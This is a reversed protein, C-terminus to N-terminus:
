KEIQSLQEQAAGHSAMRFAKEVIAHQEPTLIPLTAMRRATAMQATLPTSMARLAARAGQEPTSMLPRAILDAIPDILRYGLHIIGSDVIGPDACNVRIGRPLLEGAMSRAACTLLLKSRGYNNFRQAVNSAKLAKEAFDMRLVPFKRMISSTMVIVGGECIYPLLAITFALTSICNVQLTMEMGAPSVALHDVPMTGANNIIAHLRLGDSKLIRAIHEAGQHAMGTTSLDLPAPILRSASGPYATHLEDALAELRAPTRCAGIVAYKGEKYIAKVLAKGIGGTAGTVIVAEQAGAHSEQDHKDAM